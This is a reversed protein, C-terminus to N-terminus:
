YIHFSLILNDSKLRYTSNGIRDTDAAQDARRKFGDRM